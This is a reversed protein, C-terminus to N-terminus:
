ESPESFSREEEKSTTELGIGVWRFRGTSTREQHFGREALRLGFRKQSVPKEGNEEAWKTYAEYLEKATGQATKSVTCCDSIFGGLIDMEGRYGETAQKVEDPMGLGFKLWELCGQVGWALIGPLEPTLREMMRSKPLRDCEPISVTFPILRIRSWIANDTGRIIPKHNTALWLKFSPQFSFWEGRMFRASITDNGTLDKILSEALRKGEEVESCYVFRAGKLKALDNPIGGERKVLISETPTRVAYDGLIQAFVEHTTTKGNAGSGHAIFLCREDTIGTLSYGFALQLFSVPGLNGLFIKNLHEFWFLCAADPRYEVPAIRSMLDERRHPKLYGTKLDLTGNLVNLAWPDPDLQDPLIPIGPESQALSLMAKIKSDSESRLAHTGIQKREKEENAEAAEKYILRITDKARRYIEGTEDIKWRQGDWALWKSWPYCFRLDGGHALVFRRANGLDTLNIGVEIPIEKRQEKERHHITFISKITQEIEREPLPPSNKQNWTVAQEMCEELTLGDSVWSGCLRALTDNRSGREVGKYADRLPTKEKQNKTLIIEPLPALPVDDLGHGPIWSYAHGDPHISPPAVVYGGEARLDIGPLDDRKQFNRVGEKYGFYGHYGKGTKVMPTEPFRHDKAFQIAEPSDFDIVTIGSIKGTVIGINNSTGNGFWQVIEEESPRREQFEKWSDIAPRKDKIKLPIVSFGKALYNKALDLTKNPM